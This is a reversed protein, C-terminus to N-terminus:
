EAAYLRVLDHMRYRDGGLEEVLNSALLVGLLEDAAPPAMAAAAAIAELSIHSGPHLGLLRYMRRADEPLDCYATDFMLRVGDGGEFSLRSLRRRDDTLYRVLQPISWKRRQTLQAGAVCLALPLGGCLEALDGIGTQDSRAPLMEAILLASDSASLPSVDIFEAGETILGGLRRRSTVLVVSGSSGPILPRVQAAQDANEVVVLLRKALTRSRYMAAREPFSAPVYDERVGLVRLFSGLVENLEVGGRRRYEALDVYLQGQTFQDLHHHAWRLVAATKGVGGLGSLVIVTARNGSTAGAKDSITSLERARNVFVHPPPPLQRPADSLSYPRTTGDTRTYATRFGARAALGNPDTEASM